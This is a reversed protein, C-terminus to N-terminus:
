NISLGRFAFRDSYKNRLEKDGDFAYDPTILMPYKTKDNQDECCFGLTGQGYMRSSQPDCNYCLPTYEPNVSYNRNGILEMNKPLQCKDGVLGGFNNPYNENASYYPCEDSSNPPYDWIGGSDICEERTNATVNTTNYCFGGQSRDKQLEERRKLELDFDKIMEESIVMDKGSTVFPDMLHLTNRIMYFDQFYESGIADGFGKTGLTLTSVELSLSNIEINNQLDKTFQDDIETIYDGTDTLFNKVNNLVAFVKFERTWKLTDNRVDINFVFNRRDDIDYWYIDYMDKVVMLVNDRYKKNKGFSEGFALIVNKNFMKQWPFRIYGPIKQYTERFNVPFPEKNTQELMENIEIIERVYLTNLDDERVYSDNYATIDFHDYSNLFM